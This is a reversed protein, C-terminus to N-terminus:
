QNRRRRFWQIVEHIIDWDSIHTIKTPRAMRFLHIVHSSLVPLYKEKGLRLEESLNDCLKEVEKRQEKNM